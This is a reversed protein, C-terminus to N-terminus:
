HEGESEESNLTQAREKAAAKITRRSDAIDLLILADGDTMQKVLPEADEVKSTLIDVVSQLGERTLDLPLDREEAHIYVTMTEVAETPNEVPPEVPVPAGADDHVIALIGRSEQKKPDLVLAEPIEDGIYFRKGGFSCPKQAILKM